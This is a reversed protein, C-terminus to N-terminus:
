KDNLAIIGAVLILIGINLYTGQSFAFTFSLIGYVVAFIAWGRTGKSFGIYTAVVLATDILLLAGVEPLTILVFTNLVLQIIMLVLMLTTGKLKSM